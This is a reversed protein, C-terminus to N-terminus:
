ASQAGLEQGEANRLFHDCYSVLQHAQVGRAFDRLGEVTVETVSRALCREMVQKLHDLMFRDSLELIECASRLQAETLPESALRVRAGQGPGGSVLSGAVEGRADAAEQEIPSKISWRRLGPVGGGGRFRGHGEAENPVQSVLSGAIEGRAAAAEQDM